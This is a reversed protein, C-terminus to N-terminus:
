YLIVFIIVVFIIYINLNLLKIILFLYCFSLVPFLAPSHLATFSIRPPIDHVFMHVQTTPMRKKSM